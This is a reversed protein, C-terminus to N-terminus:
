LAMGQGGDVYLTEGTLFRGPLRYLMAVLRGIDAAQGPGGAPIRKKLFAQLAEGNLEERNLDTEIYGPAINLVRIGNRAWEVALCRSIAGVAAKSACYAANGRVGLKDYFSGINVILSSGSECLYPYAAQSALLVSTANTTMVREFDAVPFTASAGQLHIGANNVLGVVPKDFMGPVAAFAAQVSDPDTIDCRMARLRGQAKEDLGQLDPLEGSRSLCAVQLGASALEISISAGIGRSGGTVIVTGNIEPM